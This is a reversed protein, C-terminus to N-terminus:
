YDWFEPTMSGEEPWPKFELCRRSYNFTGIREDESVVHDYYEDIDGEPIETWDPHPVFSPFRSSTCSIYIKKYHLTGSQWNDIIKKAHKLKVSGELTDAVIKLLKSDLVQDLDVPVGYMQLDELQPFNKMDLSGRNINNQNPRFLYLTKPKLRAALKLYEVEDSVGIETVPHTYSAFLPVLGPVGLHIKKFHFKTLIWKLIKELYDKSSVGVSRTTERRDEGDYQTHVVTRVGSEVKLTWEVVMDDDMEVRITYFGVSLQGKISLSYAADLLSEYHGRFRSNVQSLSRRSSWQLFPALHNLYVDPLCGLPFRPEEEVVKKVDKEVLCKQDVKMSLTKEKTM